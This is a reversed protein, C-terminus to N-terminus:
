RLLLTQAKGHQVHIHRYIVASWQDNPSGCSVCSQSCACTLQMREHFYMCDSESVSLALELRHLYYCYIFVSIAIFTFWKRSIIGIIIGVMSLKVHRPKQKLKQTSQCRYVAWYIHSEEARPCISNCLM